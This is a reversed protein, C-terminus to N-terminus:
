EMIESHPAASQSLDDLIKEARRKLDDVTESLNEGSLTHPRRSAFLALLAGILAASGLAALLVLGLSNRHSTDIM